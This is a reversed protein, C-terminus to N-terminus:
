LRVRKTKKSNLNCQTNRLPLLTAIVAVKAKSRKKPNTPKVTKIFTGLLEEFTKALEAQTNIVIPWEWVVPEKLPEDTVFLFHVSEKSRIEVTDGNGYGITQFYTRSLNLTARSLKSSEGLMNPTINKGTFYPPLGKWRMM